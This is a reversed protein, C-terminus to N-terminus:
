FTFQPALKKLTFHQIDITFSINKVFGPNTSKIYDRFVKSYVIPAYVNVLNKFLSIQLGADYILKQQNSNKEWAEAYTGIDVFIKLPIKIPLVSLPNFAKPIDSTFNAAALWNDTKGIKSSLLDSRVKFFGDRQMIQQSAFGEFENRGAFYNSYTYDEYGRPGTMNLHYADTQFQKAFTKEGLYFFKGAFLRLNMGGGKAYNFFYNSTFALRVFDKGQDAQLAASYPYLARYNEVVFKLQNIYRSVTPYTIIDAQNITDRSFLLSEENIFFTKWQLYKTLLSRPDNNAFVYKIGPVIKSFRLFNKKGTSDTFEDGNFTAGALSFLLKEGNNGQHLKYDMRALGNLQKSGTAYLPSVLFSFKEQPLTYNHLIVGLMLKDYSNIGIAPSAFIYKYKDTDKFSFFSTLKVPRRGFVPFCVLADPIKKSGSTLAGLYPDLRGNSVKQVIAKFDEPYPHKFRWQLYYEKMMSDFLATGLESELVKMWKSAKYYASTQYNVMGFKESPTEIPQDKKESAAWRLLFESIDGPIRKEFFDSESKKKIVPAPHEPIYRYSEYYTNMGEDMWPHERENSALIGYFWNHGVEHDIVTELDKEDNVGSLITITPYEMGGAFKMEGQVVSVTNYPYEGILNSRLQVSKKIYKLADKWDIAKEKVPLSYAAVQIVRGSSLTMTDSKVEFRKDAFWAFDIVNNQQYLLTRTTKSSPIIAPPTEKKSVLFPKKEKKVPTKAVPINGEVSAHLSDKKLEGTAAVVYNEPLIIKVEYNGFDSYFEGQDVYPMEHWGKRDYVAAKPYWQTIQYSQGIHGGRSFNYPLKVHFPTEIKCSQKPPLPAPLLLKIIDPHQPHDEKVAISGNVKFALRNVYGKDEENSFYFQTSGNELQQKTFATRDNKYANMWLHIWIFSLTDPSNNFYEMTEYGDLTHETDNLRVSITYNVQQQWYPAQAAATFCFFFYIFLLRIAKM